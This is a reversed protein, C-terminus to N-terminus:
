ISHTGRVSLSYFSRGAQLVNWTLAGIHPGKPVIQPSLREQCNKEKIEANMSWSSMHVSVILVFHLPLIKLFTHLNIEAWNLTSTFM